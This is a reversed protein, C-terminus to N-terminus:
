KKEKSEEKSSTKKHRKRKSAFSNSNGEVFVFFEARSRDQGFEVRAAGSLCGGSILRNDPEQEPYRVFCKTTQKRRFM